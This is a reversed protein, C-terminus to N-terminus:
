KRQDSKVPEPWDGDTWEWVFRCRVEEEASSNYSSIASNMDTIAAGNVSGKVLTYLKDDANDMSYTQGGKWLAKGVYNGDALDNVIYTVDKLPDAVPTVTGTNACAVIVSSVSGELRGVLGCASGKAHVGSVSGAIVEGNNVCGFVNVPYSFGSRDTNGGIIGGVFNDNAEKQSGYVIGNNTCGEVLELDSGTVGARGVIGGVLSLAAEGGKVSGDNVCDVVSGGYLMGVIGGTLASRATAIPLDEGIVEGENKCGIIRGKNQGAIGGTLVNDSVSVDSTITGRNICGTVVGDSENM